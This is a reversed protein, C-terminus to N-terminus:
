EVDGRRADNYTRLMDAFLNTPVIFWTTEDTIPMTTFPNVFWVNRDGWRGTQRLRYRSKHTDVSTVGFSIGAATLDYGDTKVLVNSQKTLFRALRNTPGHSRSV